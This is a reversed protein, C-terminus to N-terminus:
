SLSEQSMTPGMDLKSGITQPWLVDWRRELAGPLAPFSRKESFPTYVSGKRWSAEVVNRSGDSCTEDDENSM